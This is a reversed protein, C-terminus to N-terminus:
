AGNTVFVNGELATLGTGTQPGFLVWGISAFQGIKARFSATVILDTPTEVMITERSSKYITTNGGLLVVLGLQVDELISFARQVKLMCIVNIAGEPVVCSLPTTQWNARNQTLTNLGFGQGTPSSFVGSPPDTRSLPGTFLARDCFDSKRLLTQWNYFFRDGASYMLYTFGILELPATFKLVTFLGRQAFRQAPTAKNTGKLKKFHSGRRRAGSGKEGARASGYGRVVDDLDLTILTIFLLVFAPLFTDLYVFWPRACPHSIEHFLFNRAKPAFQFEGPRIKLFGPGIQQAMM